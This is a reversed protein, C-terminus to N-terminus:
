EVRAATFPQQMCVAGNSDCQHQRLVPALALSIYSGFSDHNGFMHSTDAHLKSKHVTERRFTAISWQDEQAM